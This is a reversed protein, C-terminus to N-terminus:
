KKSTNTIFENLLLNAVVGLNKIAAGGKKLELQRSYILDAASGTFEVWTKIRTKSM